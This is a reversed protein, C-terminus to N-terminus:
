IILNSRKACYCVESLQFNRCNGRENVRLRYGEKCILCIIEILKILMGGLRKMNKYDMSLM